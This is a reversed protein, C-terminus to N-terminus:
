TRQALRADLNRRLWNLRTSRAQRALNSEPAVEDFGHFAGQWVHLEASGASQSIRTAYDVSEDRFTEVSGVDIYTPPLGAVNTARAPASYISVDASGRRDGLRADWATLNSTRDWLAAGDLEHSSPTDNRDDLMPYILLQGALKPGGLDRAMLAVGAALSGGGSAGAVVIRDPDIQLDDAHEITWILGSFCDDVPIPDPYEPSLRYEISVVVVGLERVWELPLNIGSRTNGAVVGGPHFFIVGPAVGTHDPRRCVLASAVSDDHARTFTVESAVVGANANIDEVSQTAEDVVSRLYPIMEPTLSKTAIHDVLGNLTVQLEADIPPHLSNGTM